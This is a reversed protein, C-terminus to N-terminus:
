ELEIIDGERLLVGKAKGIFIAGRQGTNLEKVARGEYQLDKVRASKKGVPVKTGKVIKGSLVYGKIMYNESIGFVSEVEFRPIEDSTYKLRKEEVAKKEEELVRQHEEEEVRQKAHDPICVGLGKNANSLPPDFEVM